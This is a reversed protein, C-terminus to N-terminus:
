FRSTLTVGRVVVKGVVASVDHHGCHGITKADVKGVDAPDVVQCCGGQHLAVILLRRPLHSFPLPRYINLTSKTDEEHDIPVNKLCQIYCYMDNFDYIIM